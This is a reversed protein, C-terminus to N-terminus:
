VPSSQLTATTEKSAVVKAQCCKPTPIKSCVIRDLPELSRMWLPLFTWNQLVAPLIEPRRSQLVNVITIFALIIIVITSVVVVLATSAIALGMWILPIVLFCMVLYALAYWRYVATTNGLFKAAGIPVARLPWVVYWIAIGSLNFFLHAYAVQLTLFLKSSDAALAALLGTICTGINAGLVTPYMREVKIVGVGVLPTLASTTISSSQVCITVGLGVLIALYGSVWGMPITVGGCKLDPVNGNVSKHLWVAIRGKLLSKLTYVITFLTTCLVTLAFILTIAGAVGDSMDDPGWGFLNKLISKDQLAVLEDPTAVAIKTILKKDVSMMKKTLPKTIAKLIDPPKEGSQLGPSADILAKSVHYLYNTASELPLLVLVSLFNFMDHVTAAAFARRFEDKDGIQAGM